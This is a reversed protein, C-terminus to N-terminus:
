GATKLYEKIKLWNGLVISIERQFGEEM